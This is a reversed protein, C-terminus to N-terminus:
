MENKNRERDNGAIDKKTQQQRQEDRKKARQRTSQSKKADQRNESLLAEQDEADNPADKDTTEDDTEEDTSEPVEKAKEGEKETQEANKVPQDSGEMQPNLLNAFNSFPNPPPPFPRAFEPGRKGFCHFQILKDKYLTLPTILAQLVLPVTVAWKWHIFVMAAVRLALQQLLRYVEGQDYEEITVTDMTGPEPPPQGFKAPRPVLIKTHDKTMQIQRQIFFLVAAEVACVLGFM